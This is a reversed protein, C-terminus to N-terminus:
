LFQEHRLKRAAIAQQQNIAHAEVPKVSGKAASKDSHQVQKTDLHTDSKSTAQKKSDGNAFMNAGKAASGSHSAHHYGYTHVVDKAVGDATPLGAFCQLLELAANQHTANASCVADKPVIVHFGLDRADLATGAVCYDGLFGVVVVTDVGHARLAKELPSANFFSWPTPKSIKRDPWWVHRKEAVTIPKLEPFFADTELPMSPGHISYAKWFVPLKAERFAKLIKEAPGICSKAVKQFRFQSDIVLLAPKHKPDTLRGPYMTHCWPADTQKFNATAVNSDEHTAKPFKSRQKPMKFLPELLAPAEGIDGPEVHKDLLSAYPMLCKDEAKEAFGTSTEFRKGAHPAVFLDHVQAGLIRLM